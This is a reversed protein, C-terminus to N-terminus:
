DPLGLAKWSPYRTLRGDCVNAFYRGRCSFQMIRQGEQALKAWRSSTEPNQEIGEIAEEAYRFALTRLGRNRTRGVEHGRGEVEVERRQEVMSQKWVDILVDALTM